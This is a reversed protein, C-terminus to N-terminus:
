DLGSRLVRKVLDAEVKDSEVGSIHILYYARFYSTAPVYRVVRGTQYGDLPRPFVVTAGNEFIETPAHVTADAFHCLRSLVQKIATM